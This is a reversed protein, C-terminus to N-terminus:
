NRSEYLRKCKYAQKGYRFSEMTDCDAVIHQMTWATAILGGLTAWIVANKMSTTAKRIMAGFSIAASKFNTYNKLRKRWDNTEQESCNTKKNWFHSSM